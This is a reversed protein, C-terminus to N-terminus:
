LSRRRSRDPRRRSDSPSARANSQAVAPPRRGRM